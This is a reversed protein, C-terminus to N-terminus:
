LSVEQMKNKVEPLFRGCQIFDLWAEFQRAHYLEEVAHDLDGECQLLWDAVDALTCFTRGHWQFEPHASMTILLQTVALDPDEQARRQMDVAFRRQEATANNKELYFDLLGLRLFRVPAADPPLPIAAAAKQAFDELDRYTQGCWCFAKGPQITQLLRFLGEDADFCRACKECLQYYQVSFQLLFDNLQHQQLLFAAYNWDQAAAQILEHMDLIVRDKFYLPRFSRPQETTKETGPHKEQRVAVAGERELWRRIKEHDPRQRPDYRVLDQLLTALRPSINDQCRIGRQWARRVQKESLNELPSTGTLLTILTLGMACYDSAPTHVTGGSFLTEPAMYALTGGVKERSDLACVNGFDGLVVTEDLTKWFLNGPKVDNHLLQAQHLQFLAQELQPLVVQVVTDEPLRRGELSGEPLLPLAEYPYEGQLGYGLLRLIGPARLLQLRRLVPQQVPHGAEYLKIVTDAQGSTGKALYLASHGGRRLASLITWEGVLTGELDPFNGTETPRNEKLGAPLTEEDCFSGAPLTEEASIQM